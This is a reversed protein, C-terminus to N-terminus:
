AGNAKDMMETFTPTKDGMIMLYGKNVPWHRVEKVSTPMAPHDYITVVVDPDGGINHMIQAIEKILDSAKM